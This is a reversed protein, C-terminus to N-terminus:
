TVSLPDVGVHRVCYRISAAVYILVRLAVIVAILAPVCLLAVAAHGIDTNGKSIFYLLLSALLFFGLPLVRRDDFHLHCQPRAPTDADYKPNLTLERRCVGCTNNGHAVISKRLCEKHVPAQCECPSNMTNEAELCFYCTM